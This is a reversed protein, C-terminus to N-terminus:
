ILRGARTSHTSQYGSLDSTRDRPEGLQTDVHGNLLVGWGSQEQLAPQGGAHNVRKGSKKFSTNRTFRSIKNKNLNFLLQIKLLYECASNATDCDACFAIVLLIGTDLPKHSNSRGPMIPNNCDCKFFCALPFIDGIAIKKNLLNQKSSTTQLM